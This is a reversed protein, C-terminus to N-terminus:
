GDGQQKEERSEKRSCGSSVLGQSTAELGEQRVGCRGLWPPPGPDHVRLDCILIFGKERVHNRSLFKDMVVLSVFPLKTQKLGSVPSEM